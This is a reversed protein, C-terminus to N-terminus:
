RNGLRQQTRALWLWAWPNTAVIAISKRFEEAATQYDAQGYAIHGLRSHVIADAALAREDAPDIRRMAEAVEAVEADANMTRLRRFLHWLMVMDHHGGPRVQRLVEVAADTQGEDALLDAIHESASLWGPKISLAKQASALSAAIDGSRKQTRALWLWAWQEDPTLAIAQRFREEALRYDQQDLAERGLRRLERAQEFVDPMTVPRVEEVLAGPQGMGRMAKGM